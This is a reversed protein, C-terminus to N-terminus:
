SLCIIHIESLYNHFYSSSDKEQKRKCDKILSSHVFNKIGEAAFKMNKVFERSFSILLSCFM